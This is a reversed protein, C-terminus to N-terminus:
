CRRRVRSILLRATLDVNQTHTYQLMICRVGRYIEGSEVIIEPGEFSRDSTKCLQVAADM